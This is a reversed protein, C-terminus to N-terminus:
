HGNCLMNRKANFTKIQTITIDTDKASWSMDGTLRCLEAKVLMATNQQSTAPANTPMQSACATLLLVSVSPLLLRMPWTKRM